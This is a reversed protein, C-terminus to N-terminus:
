GAGLFNVSHIEYVQPWQGGGVLGLVLDDLGPTALQLRCAMDLGFGTRPIFNLCVHGHGNSM